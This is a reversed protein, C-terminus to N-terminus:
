RFPYDDFYMSTIGDRSRLPIALGRYSFAIAASNYPVAVTLSFKLPDESRAMASSTLGEISLSRGQADVFILDAHFNRISPFSYTLRDAFLISGSISLSDQSQVYSYDISLDDTTYRGSREGGAELQIQKSPPVVGKSYSVPVSQCGAVLLATVALLMLRELSTMYPRRLNKM